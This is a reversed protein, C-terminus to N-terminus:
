ATASYGTALDKSTGSTTLVPNCPQLCYFFVQFKIDLMMLATGQWAMFARLAIARGM